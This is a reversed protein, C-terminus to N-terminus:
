AFSNYMTVDTGEICIEPKKCFLFFILFSRYVAGKLRGKRQKNKYGYAIFGGPICFENGGFSSSVAM